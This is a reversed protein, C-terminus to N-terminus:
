LVVFLRCLYTFITGSALGQRRLSAIYATLTERTARAGPDGTLDITLGLKLFTLWRGYAWIHSQRTKPMWTAGRGSEDLLGGPSTVRAFLAQDLGPWDALPLSRHEPPCSRTM